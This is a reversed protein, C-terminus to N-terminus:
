VVIIANYVIHLKSLPTIKNASNQWHPENFTSPTQVFLFQEKLLPVTVTRALFVADPLLDTFLVADFVEAGFFGFGLRADFTIV